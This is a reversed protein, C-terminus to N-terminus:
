FERLCAVRGLGKCVHCKSTGNCRECMASDQGKRKCYCNGSGGCVTCSGRLRNYGGRLQKDFSGLTETIRTWFEEESIAHEAMFFRECDTAYL